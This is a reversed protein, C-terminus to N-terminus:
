KAREVRRKESSEIQVITARLYGLLETVRGKTFSAPISSAEKELKIKLEKVADFEDYLYEDINFVKYRKELYQGFVITDQHSWNNVIGMVLVSLDLADLFPKHDYYKYIDGSAESWSRALNEQLMSIQSDKSNEIVLTKKEHFLARVDEDELYRDSVDYFNHSDEIKFFGEINLSPKVYELLENKTENIYGNQAFYVLMDLARAWKLISKSTPSCLFDDKTFRVLELFELDNVAQYNFSLLKDVPSATVPLDFLEIFNEPVVSLDVCYDILLSPIVGSHSQMIKALLQKRDNKEHNALNDNRDKEAELFHDFSTGQNYDMLLESKSFGHVFHANCILTIHEILKLLSPIVDIEKNSDKEIEIKLLHYRCLIRHLVRYNTLLLSDILSSLRSKIVPCLLGDYTSDSFAIMDKSSVTLSVRNYFTKELIEKNKIHEENAVVVIRFNINNEALNLCEGLVENILNESSSRELDDVILILNNIRSLLNHKIPKGLASLIGSTLGGDGFLNAVRGGIGITNKLVEYLTLNEIRNQTQIYANALVRDRFDEISSIGYLSMYCIRHGEATSQMLNNKVLHTKGSGWAGSLLVIPPFSSDFLYDMVKESIQKQDMYGGEKNIV